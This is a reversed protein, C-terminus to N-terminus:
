AKAELKEVIKEILFKVTDAQTHQNDAYALMEDAMSALMVLQRVEEDRKEM